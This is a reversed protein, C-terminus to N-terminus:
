LGQVFVKSAEEASIQKWSAVQGKEVVAIRTGGANLWRAEDLTKDGDLDNERYVEFGDQYYSWEDMNRGRNAVFRRLLKGQGDRLAYGVSKNQVVVIEVKCAAVAAPDAPMDYDVGPLTPRFALLASPEPLKPSQALVAIPALGLLWCCVTVSYRLSRMPTEKRVMRIGSESIGSEWAGRDEKPGTRDSE